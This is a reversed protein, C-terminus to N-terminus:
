LGLKKECYKNLSQKSALAQLDLQKHLEPDIRLVFRGSYQKGITPKPLPAGNKKYDEIWENVVLCLETYVAAESDGHVGGEFLGPCTGIFCNDESSWSVLKIYNRAEKM